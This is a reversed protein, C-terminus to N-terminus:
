VDHSTVWRNHLAHANDPNIHLAETYVRISEHYKGAAALCYAHNNLLRLSPESLRLSAAYADAAEDYRRLKRLCYGRATLSAVDAPEANLVRCCSVNILRAFPICLLWISGQLKCIGVGCACAVLRASSTSDVFRSVM